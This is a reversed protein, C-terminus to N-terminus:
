DASAGRNPASHGTLTEFCEPCIGHTVPDEMSSLMPIAPCRMFGTPLKIARCWACQVILRPQTVLAPPTDLVPSRMELM